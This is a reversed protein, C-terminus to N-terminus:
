ISSGYWALDMSYGVIPYLGDAIVAGEGSRSLTGPFEAYLVCVCVARQIAERNVAYVPLFGGAQGHELAGAQFSSAKVRPM